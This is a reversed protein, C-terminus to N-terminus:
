SLREAWIREFHSEIDATYGAADTLSSKRVRERLTRRVQNLEERHQAWYRGIEVFQDPSEAIFQPLGVSHLMGATQRSIIREGLLTLVPTGMWLAECSTLGGNYPFTDLAIDMDAYEAFMDAHESKGRFEIRAAEIGREAFRELYNAQMDADSMASGKLLLTSEPVARLLGAWTEIVQPVMKHHRNFSGFVIPNEPDRVGPEPAYDPAEYVLRPQDLYILEEVFRQQSDPPTSFHDTVYYDMTEVGTTDFYDLMSVQVPAPKRAIVPMRNEPAHGALDVLIDIEDDVIRQCMQSDSMAGVEIWRDAKEAFYATLEDTRPTINYLYIEFRSRDHHDFLPKFFFGVIERSFRPSVYALRIKGRGEVPSQRRGVVPNRKVLQEGLARHMEFLEAHDRGSFLHMSLLIQSLISLDETCNRFVTQYCEIAEESRGLDRLTHGLNSHAVWLDPKLKIARRLAEVADTRRGDLTLATGYNYWHSYVRPELEVTRKSYKCAEGYNADRMEITCALTFVEVPTRAMQLLPTVAARARAIDGLKLLSQALAMQKGPDVPKAAAVNEYEGSALCCRKYKKGSGCPCPENRGIPM